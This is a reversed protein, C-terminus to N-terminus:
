IYNDLTGSVRPYSNPLKQPGHVASVGCFQYGGLAHTIDANGM